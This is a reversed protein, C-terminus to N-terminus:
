KLKGQYLLRSTILAEMLISLTDVKSLELLNHESYFKSRLSKIEEVMNDLENQQYEELKKLESIVSM